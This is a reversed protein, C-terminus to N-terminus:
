WLKALYPGIKLGFGDNSLEPSDRARARLTYIPEFLVTFGDEPM